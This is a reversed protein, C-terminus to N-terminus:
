KENKSYLNIAKRVLPAAVTSGSEGNEIIAVVVLKPDEVPGYGVFLAHDRLSEDERLFKYETEGISKVQATGTKGAIRINRDYINNATGNSAEVVGLLAEEIRKWNQNDSLSINLNSVKETSVGGIKEIIRPKVIEGRNALTAYALAIQIPTATIYGQGIGMNITDGKFWAEGIYGLKWKRSPLIGKAENETLGSQKGYGFKELFPSLNNITLDYALAYFYVDSSEVIAKKMDVNGHGGEKWGKYPRDDGEVYYEGSDVIRKEWSITEAELAAMGVFPKLTSAPPYQGSLARNFLPSDKDAFLSKVEEYDNISNLLNPDYTPSSILARILGTRPEIAVLAGKRGKFDSFLKKQLDLDISLKLDKGKLPPEISINRILKGYSDREQIRYGMNGRLISDFDKEVGTKGIKLSKFKTLEPNNFIDERSINGVYGIVPAMIDKHIVNRSFSSVIEAGKIKKLNVSLKAIQQENLDKILIYPEQSSKGTARVYFDSEIKEFNLDLLDSIQKLFVRPNEIFSPNIELDQQINNEVLLTNKTDFIFGRQPAIKSQYLRNSDSQTKYIDSNFYSLNLIQLFAFFLLILFPSLFVIIRYTEISDKKNEFISM